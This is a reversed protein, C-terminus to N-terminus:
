EFKKDDEIGLIEKIVKFSADLYIMQYDPNYIEFTLTKHYKLEKLISFLDNFNVTGTGIPMHLDAVENMGGLNDSLHIHELKDKFKHLLTNTKERPTQHPSNPFIINAHGSDFTFGLKPHKKFISELDNVSEDLNELMLKINYEDAAIIWEEIAKHKLDMINDNSIDPPNETGGFVGHFVIKTTIGLQGILKIQESYRDTLDTWIALDKVMLTNLHPLHLISFLDYSDLVERIAILQLKFEEKNTLYDDIYFELFDFGMQKSAVLEAIQIKNLPFSAGFKM